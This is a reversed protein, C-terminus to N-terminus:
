VKVGTRKPVHASTPMNLADFLARVEEAAKSNPEVEQAAQGQTFPYKFAKREGWRVAAVPIGRSRIAEEAAAVEQGQPPVRNLVFLMPTGALKCVDITADVADLDVISPQIPAVVLDAVRAAQAGARDAQPATDIIVLDYHEAEALKIAQDLRGAAETAHDLVGLGAEGDPKPDRRDLIKAASAQTDIDILLTRYGRIRGEVALHLAVTTKGAGGKQCVLAVKHM